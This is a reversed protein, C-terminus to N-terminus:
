FAGKLLSRLNTNVTIITQDGEAASGVTGASMVFYLAENDLKRKVKVDVPIRRPASTNQGAPYMYMQDDTLPAFSTVTGTITYRWLWDERAARVQSSPNLNTAWEAVPVPYSRKLIGMYLSYIVIDPTQSNCAVMYIIDGVTRLHTAGKAELNADVDYQSPEVLTVAMVDTAHNLESDSMDFEILNLSATWRTLPRRRRFGSFSRRRRFAM